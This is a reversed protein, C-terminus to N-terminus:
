VFPYTTERKIEAMVIMSEITNVVPLSSIKKTLFEDYANMGLTVIKLMFDYQGTVRYCELVEPYSLIKEQFQKLSGGDHSNLKILPYSTFVTDLLNTDLLAVTAKIFGLNTLKKIRESVPNLSLNVLKGIERYPMQCNKQLLKLIEKDTSDLKYNEM